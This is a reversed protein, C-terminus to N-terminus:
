PLRLTIYPMLSPKYVPVHRLETYILHLNPESSTYLPSIPNPNPNPNPESSTYILHFVELTAQSYFFHLTAPSSFFQLVYPRQPFM